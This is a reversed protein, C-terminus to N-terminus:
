IPTSLIAAGPTDHLQRIRRLTEDQHLASACL